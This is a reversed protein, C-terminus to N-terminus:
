RRVLDQIHTRKSQCEEMVRVSERRRGGSVPLPLLLCTAPAPHVPIARRPPPRLLCHM